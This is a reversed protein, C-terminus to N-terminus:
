GYVFSRVPTSHPLGCLNSERNSICATEKDCHDDDPPERVIWEDTGEYMESTDMLNACQPNPPEPM